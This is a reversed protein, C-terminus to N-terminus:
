TVLLRFHETSATLVPLRSRKTLALFHPAMPQPFNSVKALKGTRYLKIALDKQLALTASDMQQKVIGMFAQADGQSQALVQGSWDALSYDPVCTLSFRAAPTADTIGNAVSFTASRKPNAGYIVPQEFSAGVREFRDIM